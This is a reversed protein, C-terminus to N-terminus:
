STPKSLSQVYSRWGGFASVDPARKLAHGECIFGHVTRGDALELSGLGLPAPILALFSGLQDLPMDWVEVAIAHGPEGEACRQLGPKPPTTGPLAFLRYRAATQTAQLLRAGRETLQGNLPMGSLHAGVVAIPLSARVAPARLLTADASALESPRVALGGLPLDLSAQWDSGWAALAADHRAAGIVTIGFPLGAATRGAPLALASWGLLNVFNTYVGLASNAGVPDAAVESFRPHQPATPVFLLDVQQWVAANCQQLAKLTYQARFTDTASFRSAVAIVERVTPDLADPRSDLLPQVVAHREAVWPGTYLLAATDHLPTFDLPVLTHGLARAQALAAEWAPAYLAGIVPERPIGLRLGTGASSGTAAGTGICHAPGPTFQSYSDRADAGEIVSLVHAADAVTLAFICVCDLTRCAPVVGHASVRGPTPKLGVLQNFGAPVRGSGATDTGLSFVVCGSAVAVASGSSSGGSIHEASFVSAPQGYPSRTGVLGTAFQDLNTKGLWVAGAALLRAVATADEAAVHAFAPCAATTPAGAIDINDKVAFPVGFLPHRQLLLARDPCAAALADLRDLQAAFSDDDVAHIWVAPQSARCRARSAQLLTRHDAGNLLAALWADITAPWPAADASVTVDDPLTQAFNDLPLNMLTRRKTYLSTCAALACPTGAAADHRLGAPTQLASPSM